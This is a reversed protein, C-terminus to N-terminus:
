FSTNALDPYSLYQVLGKCHQFNLLLNVYFCKPDKQM